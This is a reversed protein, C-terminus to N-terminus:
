SAYLQVGEHIINMYYPLTDAFQHFIDSGTVHVSIIIGYELDVLSLKENIGRDWFPTEENSIKALVCFDMDSYEDFDGRAYSGFLIVKELRDGLTEKSARLVEQIVASIRPDTINNQPM